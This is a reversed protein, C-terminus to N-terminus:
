RHHGPRDNLYNMEILARALWIRTRLKGGDLADAEELLARAEEGMGRAILARGERVLAVVRGIEPQQDELMVEQYSTSVVMPTTSTGLILLLTLMM